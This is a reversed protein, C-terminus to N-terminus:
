SNLEDRLPKELADLAAWDADTPGTASQSVSIANEVFGVIDQGLSIVNPALKLAATLYDIIAQANM